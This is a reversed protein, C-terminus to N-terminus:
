KTSSVQMVLIIKLDHISSSHVNNLSKSVDGIIKPHKQMLYYTYNLFSLM